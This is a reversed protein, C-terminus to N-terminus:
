DCRAALLDLYAAQGIKPYEAFLHVFEPYHETRSEEEAALVLRYIKALEKPYTEQM